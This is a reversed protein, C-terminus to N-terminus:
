EKPEIPMARLRWVRIIFHLFNPYFIAQAHQTFALAAVEEVPAAM